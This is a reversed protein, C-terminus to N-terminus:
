VAFYTPFLLGFEAVGSLHQDALMFFLEVIDWIAHRMEALGISSFVDSQFLALKDLFLVFQRSFWILVNHVSVIVCGSEFLVDERTVRFDFFDGVFWVVDTGWNRESGSVAFSLWSKLLRKSFYDM